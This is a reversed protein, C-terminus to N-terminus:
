LIVQYYGILGIAPYLYIGLFTKSPDGCFKNRKMRLENFCFGLLFFCLTQSLLLLLSFFGTGCSCRLCRSATLTRGGTGGCNSICGASVALHTSCNGVVCQLENTIRVYIASGAQGVTGVTGSKYHTYIRVETYAKRMGRGCVAALTCCNVSQSICLCSVQDTVGTMYRQIDTVTLDNM